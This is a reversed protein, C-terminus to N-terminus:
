TRRSPRHPAVAAGRTGGGTARGREAILVLAHYLLDATEGALAQGRRRGTAVRRKPRRTTRPRSSSRPRRRPSRGRRRTSAAPSSGRPTRATRVSPRAPRSPRGCRRWGPSGRRQDSRGPRRRSRLLEPDRPSLDARGSRRHRALADDDCDTALDVLRLVNGSTEGKRWLRDRSRSHFHVEGTELTAALAEADMYAVMLVRGDAADQIVAPM